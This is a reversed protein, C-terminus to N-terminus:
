ENRGRIHVDINIYIPVFEFDQYAVALFSIVQQELSPQHLTDINKPHLNRREIVQGM